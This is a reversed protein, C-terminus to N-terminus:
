LPLDLVLGLLAPTIFIEVLAAVVLLLAVLPLVTITEKWIYKFSQLRNKEPLPFFLSFGFKLGLGASIFFAFLEFIGHPLIGLLFVPLFPIDQGAFSAALIGLIRGNFYLTFLPALGAAVGLLLMQAMTIFNALFIFLSAALPSLGMILKLIDELQSMLEDNLPEGHPATQYAHFGSIIFIFVAIFIWSRNDSIVNWAPKFLSLM